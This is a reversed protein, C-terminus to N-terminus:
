QDGLNRYLVYEAVSYGSAEYFNRARANGSMVAIKVTDVGNDRAIAEAAGLLKRGVGASRWDQTVVLTVVEATGGKVEFTDDSGHEIAVMAYGIVRGNRDTATVYSAGEALLRRYWRLRNAWSSDLDEVLGRYDSVERHHDHLERWLAELTSLGDPDSRPDSLEHEVGGTDCCCNDAQVM